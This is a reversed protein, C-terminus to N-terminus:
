EAFAKHEAAAGRQLAEVLRCGGLVLRDGGLDRWGRRGDAFPDPGEDAELTVGLGEGPELVARVLQGAEHGDRRVGSFLGAAGVAPRLERFRVLVEVGVVGDEVRVGLGRAELYP